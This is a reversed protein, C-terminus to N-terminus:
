RDERFVVAGLFDRDAFAAKCSYKGRVTAGYRNQTDFSGSVRFAKTVRDMDIDGGQLIFDIMDMGTLDIPLVTTDGM